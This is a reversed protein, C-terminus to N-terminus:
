PLFESDLGHSAGVFHGERGFARFRLTGAIVKGRMKVVFYGFPGPQKLREQLEGSVAGVAAKTHFIRVSGRRRFSVQVSAVGPALSGSLELERPSNTGTGETFSEM